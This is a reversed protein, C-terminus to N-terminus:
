LLHLNSQHSLHHNLLLLLLKQHTSITKPMHNEEIYSIHKKLIGFLCTFELQAVKLQMILTHILIYNSAHIKM